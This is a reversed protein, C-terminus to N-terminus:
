SGVLGDSRAHQHVHVPAYTPLTLYVIAERHRRWVKMWTPLLDSLPMGFHPLTAVMEHPQVTKPLEAPRLLRACYLGPSRNASEREPYCVVQDISVYSRTCVALLDRIPFGYSELARRVSLYAAGPHVRVEPTREISGSTASASWVHNAIMEIRVDGDVGDGLPEVTSTMTITSESPDHSKVGIWESWESAWSMLPGFQFRVESMPDEASELFRGGVVASVNWIEPNHSSGGFGWRSRTCGLLTIPMGSQDVGHM